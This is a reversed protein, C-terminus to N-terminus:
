QGLVLALDETTHHGDIEVDGTARVVLDILGHRAIQEVMHTLFPLPTRVDARGTGDLDLQVEISTEKTTRTHTASRGMIVASGLMAERPDTSSSAPYNRIDPFRARGTSTVRDGATIGSAAQLHPTKAVNRSLLSRQSRWATPARPPPRPKCRGPHSSGPHSDPAVSRLPIRDQGRSRRCPGVGGLVPDSDCPSRSRHRCRSRAKSRKSSEGKKKSRAAQAARGP